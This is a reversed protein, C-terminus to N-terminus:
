ASTKSVWALRRRSCTSARGFAQYRWLLRLPRKHVTDRRSRSSKPPDALIKGFARSLVGGKMTHYLTRPRGRRERRPDAKERETRFPIATGHLLGVCGRDSEEVSIGKAAENQFAYQVGMGVAHRHREQTRAERPGKNSPIHPLVANRKLLTLHFFVAGEIGKKGTHPIIEGHVHGRLVQDAWAIGEQRDKGDVLLAAKGDLAGMVAEAIKQVVFGQGRLEAAAVAENEAETGRIVVMVAVNVVAKLLLIVVDGALQVTDLGDSALCIRDVRQITTGPREHLGAMEPRDHLGLDPCQDDAPDHIRLRIYGNAFPFFLSVKVQRAGGNHQKEM